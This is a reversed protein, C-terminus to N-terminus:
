ANRAVVPRPQEVPRIAQDAEAVRLELLALWLEGVLARAALQERVEALERGLARRSRGAIV